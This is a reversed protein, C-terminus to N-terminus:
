WAQKWSPLPTEWGCQTHVAKATEMRARRQIKASIWAISMSSNSHKSFSKSFAMLIAANYIQEVFILFLGGIDIHLNSVCVCASLSLSFNIYM